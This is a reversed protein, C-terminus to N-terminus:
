HRHSSPLQALEEVIKGSKINETYWGWATLPGAQVPAINM